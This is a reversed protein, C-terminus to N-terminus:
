ASQLLTLAPAIAEKAEPLQGLAQHALALNSLVMAQNLRLVRDGQSQYAQIAQQWVKVAAAFQGAEYHERGQQLLQPATPLSQTILIGSSIHAFVPQNIIGFLATLCALLRHTLCGKRTPRLRSVRFPKALPQHGRFLLHRKKAM